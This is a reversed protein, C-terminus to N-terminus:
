KSSPINLKLKIWWHASFSFSWNIKKGRSTDRHKQMWVVATCFIDRLPLAGCSYQYREPSPSLPVYNEMMFYQHKWLECSGNQMDAESVYSPWLHAVLKFWWTREGMVGFPFTLPNTQTTSIDFIANPIRQANTILISISLPSQCHYRRSYYAFSKWEPWVCCVFVAFTSSSSKGIDGVNPQGVFHSVIEIRCNPVHWMQRGNQRKLKYDERFSRRMGFSRGVGLRCSEYIFLDNEVWTWNVHFAERRMSGFWLSKNGLRIARHFHNHLRVGRRKRSHTKSLAFRCSISPFHLCYNSKM